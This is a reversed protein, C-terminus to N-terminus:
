PFVMSFSLFIPHTKDVSFAFFAVGKDPPMVGEHHSKEFILLSSLSLILSGRKKHLLLTRREREIEKIEHKEANEDRQGQKKGYWRM